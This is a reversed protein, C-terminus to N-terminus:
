MEHVSQVNFTHNSFLDWKYKIISMFTSRKEEAMKQARGEPAKIKFLYLMQQAQLYM